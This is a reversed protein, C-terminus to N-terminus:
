KKILGYEKFMDELEEISTEGESQDIIRDGNVILTLPTGWGESFYDDSKQLKSIGDNDLKDTDLYNIEVGYKYVMYRMIPKQVECHSCTPRGIYIISYKESNKKLELYEEIGIDKLEGMEDESINVSQNSADGVSAGSNTSKTYAGKKSTNGIATIAIFFIILLAAIIVAKVIDNKNEENKVEVKEEVKKEEVIKEIKKPTTQKKTEEKKKPVRKKEVETKKTTTKKTATKTTKTSKSAQKTKKEEVEKKTNAM